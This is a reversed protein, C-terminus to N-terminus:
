ADWEAKLREYRERCATFSARSIPNDSTSVAIHAVRCALYATLLEAQLRVREAAADRREALNVVARM